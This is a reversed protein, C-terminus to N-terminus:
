QSAFWKQWGTDRQLVSFKATSTKGGAELLRQLFLRHLKDGSFPLLVVTSRGLQLADRCWSYHINECLAKELREALEAVSRRTENSMFLTYHPLGPLSPRQPALFAVGDKHKLLDIIKQIHGANLKEGALDSVTAEKGCFALCPLNRYWGRMEVIDHLRYRFLGGFTTMIVRYRNGAILEDALRLEGSGTEGEEFEFFASRAALVPAPANHIPLTVAGETALLGKTQVAVDPFYETLYAAGHTAEGETWTSILALEPWLLKTFASKEGNEALRVATKLTDARLSSPRSNHVIGSDALAKNLGTFGGNKLDHCLPEHWEIIAQLLSIFFTPNWLSILRLNEHRLLSLVTFYRWTEISEINGAEEAVVTIAKILPKAWAGFYDSDSAFGIPVGGSTFKKTTMKPTVVWYAPGGFLRHHHHHLDFLWPHLARNFAQQLKATYPILRTGSTTGSTEEFMLLNDATLVQKEGNELRNIFPLLTDFDNVPVQRCFDAINSIRAFGFEKGYATDISNNIIQSLTNAQINRLQSNAARRFKLTEPLCIAMWASQIAASLPSFGAM